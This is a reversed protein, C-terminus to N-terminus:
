LRIQIEFNLCNWQCKLRYGGNCKESLVEGKLKTSVFTVFLHVLLYIENKELNIWKALLFLISILIIKHIKHNYIRAFAINKYKVYM